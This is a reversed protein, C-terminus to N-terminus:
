FAKSLVKKPQFGGELINISGARREIKYIGKPVSLYDSELIEVHTYEPRYQM